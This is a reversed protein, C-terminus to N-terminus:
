GQKWEPLIRDNEILFFLGKDDESVDKMSNVTSLNFFINSDPRIKWELSFHFYNQTVKLFLRNLIIEFHLSINLNKKVYTM